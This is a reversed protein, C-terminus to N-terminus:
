SCFKCQLIELNMDSVLSHFMLGLYIMRANVYVACLYTRAIKKGTLLLATLYSLQDSCIAPITINKAHTLILQCDLHLHPLLCLRTAMDM